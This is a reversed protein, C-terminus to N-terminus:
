NDDFLFGAKESIMEKKLSVIYSHKARNLLVMNNEMESLRNMLFDLLIFKEKNAESLQNFIYPKGDLTVEKISNTTGDLVADRKKIVDDLKSVM